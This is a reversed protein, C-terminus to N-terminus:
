YITILDKWNELPTIALIYQRNKVKEKMKESIIFPNDSLLEM